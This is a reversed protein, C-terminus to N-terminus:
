AVKVVSTSKMKGIAGGIAVEAMFAEQNREYISWQEGFPEGGVRYYDEPSLCVAVIEGSALTAGARPFDYPIIREVGWTERMEELTMILSSDGQGYDKVLLHPLVDRAIYLWRNRGETSFVVPYVQPVVPSSIDFTSVTTWADSATKAGISELSNIAENGTQVDGVLIQREITYALRDSLETVVWDVFAADDEMAILDLRDVPLWKYVMQIDIAKTLVPFEQETKVAGKQHGKALVAVDANDVVTYMLKFPKSAVKTMRAILGEPKRWNSEIGTSIATPYAIGSIANATLHKQWNVRFDESNRAKVISNRFDKVAQASALYDPTKAVIGSGAMDRVAKRICDEVAAPLEEGEKLRESFFTKVAEALQEATVLEDSQELSAILEQLAILLAKGDSDDFYDKLAIGKVADLLQRVKQKNM